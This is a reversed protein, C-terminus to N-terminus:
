RHVEESEIKICNNRIGELISHMKFLKDNKNEPNEKTSNDVVHIYKRLQKYCNNSMVDVIRTYRTEAAWYMDYISIKMIGMLVHISQFHEMEYFSTSISMGSVQASYLNTQEVLLNTINDPWFMKFYDIPCLEDFNEPAKFVTDRKPPDKIRWRWTDPKNSVIKSTAAAKTNIKPSYIEYSVAHMEQDDSNMPQTTTQKCCRKLESPKTINSEQNENPMTPDADCKSRHKPEMDFPKAFNVVKNESWMTQNAKPESDPMKAMNSEEDKNTSERHNIIEQIDLILM